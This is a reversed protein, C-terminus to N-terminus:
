LKRYILNHNEINGTFIMEKLLNFTREDDTGRFFEEKNPRERNESSTGTRPIIPIPEFHLFNM